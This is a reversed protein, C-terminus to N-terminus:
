TDLAVERFELNSVKKYCNRLFISHHLVSLKNVIDVLGQAKSLAKNARKQM